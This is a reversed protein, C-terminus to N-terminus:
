YIIILRQDYYGLIELSRAIYTQLLYYLSVLHVVFSAFALREWKQQLKQQKKNETAKISSSKM